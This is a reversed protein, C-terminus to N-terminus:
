IIPCLLIKFRTVQNMKGGFSFGGHVSDSGYHSTEVRENLDGGIFIKERIPIRQVIENLDECFQYKNSEDLRV